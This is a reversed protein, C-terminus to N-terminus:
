RWEIEAEDDRQVSRPYKFAPYGFLMAYFPTSPRLGLLEESIEPVEGQVLRLFGCWCTGLGYANALMEFLSCAIVVDEQPTVVGPATEDASVVLMGPAGRFFIDGKGKRMQIAPLALWRPLLKQGNRHREVVKIFRGRLDDMASRTSFCTFKLARANCGTPSNGLAKLIRELTEREVDRDQYWRVSRRLRMYNEVEKVSPLAAGEAVLSDEPRKGKFTIAGKPCLAMCHQCHMCKEKEAMVPFSDAGQKLAGFLCDKVCMGCKVCRSRELEFLESQGNLDMAM